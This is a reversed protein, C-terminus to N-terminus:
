QDGTLAQAEVLERYMREHLQLVPIIDYRAVMRERGRRGMARAEEPHGVLWDLAAAMGVIDGVPKVFGSEGVLEANGRASSAVVPVELALAEMISRSLGERRSTSILATSAALAPRVDNVTGPLHVRASVGLSGAIEVLREREPGDGLLLLHTRRDQMAALARVADAQRKNDNFEGIGVVIPSDDPIALDHAVARVNPGPVVAPSYVTTDLGVGPIRILHDTPVIRSRLAAAEDYDNIVILRDTWRGALREATLFGANVVKSGGPHFHFGHATYVVAPRDARPSRRVATRGAFAAIPTHVHIVNPRTRRILRVIAQEGRILNPLDRLSRSLPLDHAADFASRIAPDDAVGQGAAEVRWGRERLYSGYPLLFGRVTAAVTAIYLISPRSTM